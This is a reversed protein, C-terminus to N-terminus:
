TKGRTHTHVTISWLHRWLTYLVLFYSVLCLRTAHSNNKVRQSTKQSRNCYVCVRPFIYDRQKICIFIFFSFCTQQRSRVHIQRWRHTDKLLDRDVVLSFACLLWTITYYGNVPFHLQLITKSNPKVYGPCAGNDIYIDDLAIDSTGTGGLNAQFILQLSLSYTFNYM